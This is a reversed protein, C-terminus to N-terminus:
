ARILGQFTRKVDRYITLAEDRSTFDRQKHKKFFDGYFRHVARHCSPCVPVLDEFTTGSKEVRAGSALPLLHHLDMVRDTWPYTARTDLTCVDCVTTPYRNFYATRLGANREITVHTKQVKTGELFGSEAVNSIVTNPFEFFDHITGQGFLQSLRRIEADGDAERPGGVPALDDFIDVADQKALTVIINQQSVFLYSIQCLVRISERAQRRSTEAVSAGKDAYTASANLLTVFQLQDESGDFGSVKYAGIIENIPTKEARGTATKALLYKLSFLLPFRLACSSNWGSLAPNPESSVQALFHFYEDSTVAGPQALLVSIPTPEALAGRESILLGQKLARSYQRWSSHSGPAPFPLGTAALLSAQTAQRFDHNIVYRAILRLNDLQFYATHGQDWHWM